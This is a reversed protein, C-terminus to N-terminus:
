NKDICQGNNEAKWKQLINNIEKLSGKSALFLLTDGPELVTGGSPVIYHEGRVILVILCDRPFGVEVIPKNVVESEFPVIFEILETDLGPPPEFEIPSACKNKLPASVGLIKSVLPVSWGQLLASTLVIFFILNFILESYPIGALLPFTALIIPVAGRLGVWAILSKEYLNYKSFILSLFVSMPRAIFMLFLSLLVGIEAVPILHSPYVLLGLTLFMTIQSLWALGDFFRLLSKKKVIQSNGIVIGAIYVALFGSGQLLYTFGFILFASALCFVPYLGEYYLKLRNFVMVVLKGSILGILAGLVMQLLFLIILPLIGDEPSTIIQIMAITLFIAMPDNSGSELELLPKLTGKLQVNKSRLVAFVASADTSSIISGLLLGHTIPIKLVLSSFIGILVATSFVGFTSLVVANKVIPKVMTWNTDLGGAFLIFILAVVGISQALKADDFHIGGIGESGALMGICLFLLLAPIGFYDFFKFILICLVILISVILLLIEVSLM